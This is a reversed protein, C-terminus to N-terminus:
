KVPTTPSDSKDIMNITIDTPWELKVEQKEAVYDGLLKYIHVLAKDKVGGSEDGLMEKIARAALERTVGAKALVEANRQQTTQEILAKAEGKVWKEKLQKAKLAHVSPTTNPYKKILYEHLEVISAHKGSLYESKIAQWTQWNYAM